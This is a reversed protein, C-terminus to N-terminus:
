SLVVFNNSLPSFLFSFYSIFVIIVANNSARPRCTCAAVFSQVGFEAVLAVIRGPIEDARM